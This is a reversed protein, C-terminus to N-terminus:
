RTEIRHLELQVALRKALSRETRHVATAITARLHSGLHRTTLCFQGLFLQFLKVVFDFQKLFKAIRINDFFLFKLNENM